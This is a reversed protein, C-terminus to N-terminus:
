IEPKWILVGICFIIFYWEPQLINYGMLDAIGAAALGKFLINM